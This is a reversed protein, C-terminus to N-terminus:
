LEVKVSKSGCKVIYINPTPLNSIPASDADASYYLKGMTDYISLTKGHTDGEVIITGKSTYINIDEAITSSVTSKTKTTYTTSASDFFYNTPTITYTKPTGDNPLYYTEAATIAILEDGDYIKYAMSNGLTIIDYDGVNEGQVTMSISVAESPYIPFNSWPSTAEYTSVAADPAVIDITEIGEFVAFATATPPTESLIYIEKLSHCAYIGYSNITKLQSPFFLSAVLCSQLGASNIVTVSEPVALAKISTNALMYNSISTIGQPLTINVLTSTFQFASVGISTINDPIHIDTIDSRYFAKDGIATVNYTVGESAVTAPIHIVGAYSANELIDYTIEVDTSNLINYYLNGDTFDYASISMTMMSLLALLNLRM